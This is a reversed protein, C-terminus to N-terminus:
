AWAYHTGSWLTAAPMYRKCYKNNGLRYRKCEGVRYNGSCSLSHKQLLKVWAWAGDSLHAGWLFVEHTPLVM